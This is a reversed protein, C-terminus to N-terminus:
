SEDGVASLLDSIARDLEVGTLPGYFASSVKGDADIIFTEPVSLIRYREGIDLGTDPGNLYTIDNQDIFKLADTETDRWSIGLMVIGQDKYKEHVAELAPAEDRCPGCWSGWFNVIVVKGRYDALNFSQGNYLDLAFDPATHGPLLPGMNQRTLQIGIVVIVALIGLLLVISGPTLGRRLPTFTTDEIPLSTNLKEAMAM